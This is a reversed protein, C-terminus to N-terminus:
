NGELRESYLELAGKHLAKESTILNGNGDNMACPADKVNPCLSKKLKWLQKSNIKGEDTKLKDLQEKLTKFNKDAAEAISETINKLELVSEADSKNKLKRRKDYLDDKCQRRDSKVRRKDFTLAICGNLKKFFREIVKDIDGNDYITSTIINTESTYKKFLAQCEKNKFNYTKSKANNRSEKMKCNFETIIVNHDSEKVKM